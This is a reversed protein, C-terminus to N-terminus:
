RAEDPVIERETQTMSKRTEKAKLGVDYMLKQTEWYQLLQITGKRSLM